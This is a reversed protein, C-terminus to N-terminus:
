TRKLVTLNLATEKWTVGGFGSAFCAGLAALFGGFARGMKLSGEQFSGLCFFFSGESVKHGKSYFFSLITLQTLAVSGFGCNM